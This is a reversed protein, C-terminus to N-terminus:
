SLALLLWWLHEKFIPTRLFKAFNVPFCYSNRSIKLFMKKVSCWQTVVETSSKKTFFIQCNRVMLWMNIIKLFGTLLFGSALAQLFSSVKSIKGIQFLFGEKHFLLKAKIKTIESRLRM